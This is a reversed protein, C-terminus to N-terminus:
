RCLSQWPFLVCATILHGGRGDSWSVIAAVSNSLVFFELGGAWLMDYFFILVRRAFHDPTKTAPDSTERTAVQQFDVAKRV